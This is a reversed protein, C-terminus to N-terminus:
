PAQLSVTFTGSAGIGFTINDYNVQLEHLGTFGNVSFVGQWAVDISLPTSGTDYPGEEVLVIRGNARGPNNAKLNGTMTGVLRNGYPLGTWNCVVNGTFDPSGADDLVLDFGNDRCSFNVILERYTLKFTGRYTGNVYPASSGSSGGSTGGTTGGSTGGASGGDDTDIPEIPEPASDWVNTDVPLADSDGGDSDADTDSDSDATADDTPAPTASLGGCGLLALLWWGVM